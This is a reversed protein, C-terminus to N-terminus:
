VVYGAFQGTGALDRQLRDCAVRADSSSAHPEATREVILPLHNAECFQEAKAAEVAPALIAKACTLPCSLAQALQQVMVMGSGAASAAANMEEAEHSGLIAFGVAPFSSLRRLERRLDADAAIQVALMVGMQSAEACLQDSAQSVVLALDAKRYGALLTKATDPLRAARLVWAKRDLLLSRGRTALPRIGITREHCPITEAGRYLEMELRYLFPMEPTWFCPDPVIARWLSKTGDSVPVLPIRAALTSAYECWPGMTRGRISWGARVLEAPLRVFVEAEAPSAQGVFVDLSRGLSDALSNESGPM